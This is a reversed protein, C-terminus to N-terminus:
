YDYIYRVKEVQAQLDEVTMDPYLKLLERVITPDGSVTNLLGVIDREIPTMEM